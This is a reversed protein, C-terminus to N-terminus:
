NILRYMNDDVRQILAANHPRWECNLFSMVIKTDGKVIIYDGLGLLDEEKILGIAKQM